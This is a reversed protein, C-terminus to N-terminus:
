RKLSIFCPNKRELMIRLTDEIEEKEDPWFTHINRMPKLITRADESWHSIGDHLYDQDRGSGVLIMKIKEHNIYTRITEFGRYLLFTTISYVIPIKGSLSLGVAIDLMSQESAGTNIFRDSFDKKIRDYMSFGLDGNVCIIDPNEIMKNYLHGAFYGRISQHFESELLKNM